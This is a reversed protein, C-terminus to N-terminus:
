ESNQKEVYENQFALRIKIQKPIENINVNRTKNGYKM